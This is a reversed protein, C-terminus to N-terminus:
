SWAPWRPLPPTLPAKEHLLFCLGLDCYHVLGLNFDRVKETATETELISNAQAVFQSGEIAKELEVLEAVVERSLHSDARAQRFTVM